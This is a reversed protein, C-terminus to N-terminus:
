LELILASRHKVTDISVGLFDAIGQYSLEQYLRLKLCRQMKAPLEEIAERLLKLHEQRLVREQPSRDTAVAIPEHDEM